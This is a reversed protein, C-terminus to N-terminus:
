DAEAVEMRQNDVSVIYSINGVSFTNDDVELTDGPKLYLDPPTIRYNYKGDTLSYYNGSKIIVHKSATSETRHGSLTISKNISGEDIRVSEFDVQIIVERHEEVGNVLYAMEVILSGNPRNNIATVYDDECPVVCSLYTPEGNRSRGQFSKMPLTYDSLSDEAGTLTLYYNKIAKSENERLWQSWNFGAITDDLVFSETLAREIIYEKALTDSSVFSEILSLVYLDDLVIGSSTFSELIIKTYETLASISDDSTFSETLLEKFLDEFITDNSTFSEAISRLYENLYSLTDTSTFNESLIEYFAVFVTIADTSTFNETITRFFETGSSILDSSTFNEILAEVFLDESIFDSCTFNETITKFFDTITSLSCSSTFNEILAEVFLDENVTDNLTFSETLLEIYPPNTPSSEIIFTAPDNWNNYEADMWDTSLRVNCLRIEGIQGEFFDNLYNPTSQIDCCGIMLDNVDDGAVTVGTTTSYNNNNVNNFSNVGEKGGCAKYWTGNSLVFSTVAKWGDQNYFFNLNGTTGNYCIRYNVKTNDAHRDKGVWNGYDVNVDTPKGIVQLTLDPTISLSSHHLVRIYESDVGENFELCKGYKGDVLNSSGMNTPTGHNLYSTSDLISNNGAPTNNMHMILHYSSNWVKEFGYTTARGPQSEGSKNYWIYITTNSSGSVSPVNVWIVAKGNAPDNNTVFYEIECPLQNEGDIDTSFRIDGGDSLAPYSGDADFMESPLSDETLMIPFNTLTSLVKSSQIVLACQRGWGSFGM